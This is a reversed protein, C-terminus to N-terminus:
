GELLLGQPQFTDIFLRNPTPDSLYIWGFLSLSHFLDFFLLLLWETAEMTASRHGTFSVFHGVLEDMMRREKPTKEKMEHNTKEEPKRWTKKTHEDGGGRRTHTSSGKVIKRSKIANSDKLIKTMSIRQFRIIPISRRTASKPSPYKVLYASLYRSFQILSSAVHASSFIWAVRECCDRGKKEKRRGFLRVSNVDNSTACQISRQSGTGCCSLNSSTQKHTM